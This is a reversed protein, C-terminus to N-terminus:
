WFLLAAAIIAAGYAIGSFVALRWRAESALVWQIGDRLVYPTGIFFMGGIIWGYALTPLLLRTLQPQLFAAQLVPGAALLMLCGLARVSLFERVYLLILVYAIPVGMLLKGRLHFYEGMDMCNLCLMSWAFAITLICIGIPYNRPFGQLFAKTASSKMWALVHTVVLLVGLLIGTSFLTVGGTPKQHYLYNYLDQFM